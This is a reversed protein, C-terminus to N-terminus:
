LEVEGQVLPPADQKRRLIIDGNPLIVPPEYQSLDDVNELLDRLAPGMQSLFAQMQPGLDQLEKLAPEMEEVLGELFLSLGQAMLSKEGTQENAEQAFAPLVSLSFAASLLLHKM